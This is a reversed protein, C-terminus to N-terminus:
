RVSFKNSNSRAAYKLKFSVPIPKDENLLYELFDLGLQFLSLDCRDTRHIIAQFGQRQCCVGLYIVWIYALCAAILLRSMRIPNEIHSKDLSFGRSKQDSFFTEIRMRRAYLRCAEQALALNTVLYIPQEETPDWHLIVQVPGFTQYSFLVDPLTLCAGRWIDIEALKLWEDHLCVCTSKATRCVYDWGRARLFGQLELTDFEGDGLLIVRVGPPLIAQLNTLLQVHTEAPFHGKNGQVVQWMLPLTRRQYVVSVMLVLCHRGIESGDIVLQLSNTALGALLERVFPLMHVDYSVQDNQCWRSLQKERSTVKAGTPTKKAVNRLHTSGSAVIGNIFMALVTVSQALRGTPPTPYLQFLKAKIARYRRLNDGM